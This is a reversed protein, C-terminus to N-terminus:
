KLKQVSQCINGAAIKAEDVSCTGVSLRFWPFNKEMGFFYFPVIAVKADDLLYALIDDVTELTKNGETKAGILDLKISLYIAGQPKIADVKYGAIKLEQITTYFINLRTLLKSKFASLFNAVAEHKQLYRATGIQEPKPAWAGIHALMSRMKEIIPKPGFAWGVRVGTAAFCKSIGDIFVVYNRIEPNLTIPNDCKIENYTLVWYIVDFFIYLPKQNHKARIKNEAVILDLIEKLTQRDFVTGSPNLPSNITILVAEKLHPELEQPTIMFNNEPKATIVIPKAGALEIFPQNNWSPVTHIVKEGPDVLTKFLLYTLPRAGSTVVIEDPDYDFQEFLKIHKAIAVRLEQIGGVYSYNTHKEHYATIIEAELESPIAFQQPSFDGLTFNFIKEGQQRRKDIKESLHSIALSTFGEALKSIKLNKM